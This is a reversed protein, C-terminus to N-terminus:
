WGRGPRHRRNRREGALEAILDGRELPDLADIRDRIEAESASASEFVSAALLEQEDGEVRVLEVSPAAGQPPRDLGMRAVARETAGRRQLLYDNWEGRRDPRGIRAVFRPIVKALETLIMDGYERAEPLPSAMLRLLLQE